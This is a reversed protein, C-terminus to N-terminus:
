VLHVTGDNYWCMGLAPCCFLVFQLLEKLLLTWMWVQSQSFLPSSNYRDYYLRFALMCNALINCYKSHGCYRLFDNKGLCESRWYAPICSLIIFRRVGWKRAVSLICLSGLWFALWVEESNIEAIAPKHIQTPKRRPSPKRHIWHVWTKIFILSLRRGFWRHILSLNVQYTWLIGIIQDIKIGLISEFSLHNFSCLDLYSELINVNENVTCTYQVRQVAGMM